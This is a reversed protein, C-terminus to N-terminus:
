DTEESNSRYLGREVAWTAIEIRNRLGLRTLIEQVHNAVTGTSVNLREAIEDNSLGEAVCVAVEQHRRTLLALADGAERRGQQRAERAIQEVLESRHTLLGIWQAVGECFHLDAEQFQDPQTSAVGLVGRREGNVTLPVDIESRVGMAEVVGRPQEPDQDARGTRYSTGTEFVRMVPGGNARPFRDLGLQHEKRSLPTDSIGLAVLSDTGAQYLFVDVKEAGLAEAVLASAENLTPRLTPTVIALLRQLTQLLREANDGSHPVDPNTPM